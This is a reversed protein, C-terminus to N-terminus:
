KLLCWGTSIPSLARHDDHSFEWPVIGCAPPKSRIRGFGENRGLERNGDGGGKGKVIRM